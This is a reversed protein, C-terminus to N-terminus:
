VPCGFCWQKYHGEWGGVGRGGERKLLEDEGMLGGGGWGGGRDYDDGEVAGIVVVGERARHGVLKDLHKPQQSFIGAHFRDDQPSVSLPDKACPRVQIYTKPRLLPLTPCLSLMPIPEHCISKRKTEAVYQIAQLARSTPKTLLPLAILLM